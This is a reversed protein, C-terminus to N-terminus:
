IAFTTVENYFVSKPKKLIAELNTRIDKETWSEFGPTDWFNYRYNIIESDIERSGTLVYRSIMKTCADLGASTKALPQQCIANILTSKGVRPSGCLIINFESFMTSVDRRIVPDRTVAASVDEIQSTVQQYTNALKDALSLNQVDDSPVTKPASFLGAPQSPQVRPSSVLSPNSINSELNTATSVSKPTKDPFKLKENTIHSKDKLSSTSSFIQSSTTPPVSIPLQRSASSQPQNSPKPPVVPAQRPVNGLKARLNPPPENSFNNSPKENNKTTVLSRTVDALAQAKFAGGAQGAFLNRRALAM